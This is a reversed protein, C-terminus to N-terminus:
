TSMKWAAPSFALLVVGFNHHGQLVTVPDAPSILVKPYFSGVIYYLVYVRDNFNILWSLIWFFIIYQIFVIITHHTVQLKAHLAM